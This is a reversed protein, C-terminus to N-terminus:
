RTLGVQKQVDTYILNFKSDYILGDAKNFIKHISESVTNAINTYFTELAEESDLAMILKQNNEIDIIMDKISGFMSYYYADSEVSSLKLDFVAHDQVIKIIRSDAIKDFIKMWKDHSSHWVDGNGIAEKNNFYYVEDFYRISVSLMAALSHISYILNEPNVVLKRFLIEILYNLVNYEDDVLKRMQEETYYKKTKRCDLMNAHESLVKKYEFDANVENGLKVIGILRNIQDSLDDLKSYMIAFGTCTACLNTGSLLFSMNQLQKVNGINKLCREVSINKFEALNKIENLSDKFFQSNQEVKDVVDKILEGNENVLKNIDKIDDLLKNIELNSLVENEELESLSNTFVKEFSEYQQKVNRFVIEVFGNEEIRKKIDEPFINLFESITM